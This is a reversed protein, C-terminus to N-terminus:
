TSMDDPVPVVEELAPTTAFALRRLLYRREVETLARDAAPERTRTM